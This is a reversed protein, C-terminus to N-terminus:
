PGIIFRPFPLTDIAETAVMVVEMDAPGEATAGM